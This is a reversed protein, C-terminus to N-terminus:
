RRGRNHRRNSGANNGGNNGVNDNINDDDDNDGDNSGGQDHQVTVKVTKTESLNGSEDVAQVTLTYIRAGEKGSREARVKATHDGTIEWDPATNGSGIADVAQNSTISVIKWSTPGCVDTVRAEVRVSVMKHNPPWICAPSATVKAIVPPITDVVTVTSSCTASEGAADTVAVTVHNTGLAYEAEFTVDAPATTSGAALENTQIPTGSVSWVVVLADGDPDSVQSTLKTLSGCEATAPEPCTIAPAHNLQAILQGRIEGGPYNTTHINIYHLNALLNTVQDAPIVVQGYILGGAGPDAPMFHYPALNVVM